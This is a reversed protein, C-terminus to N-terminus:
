QNANLKIGYCHQESRKNKGNYDYVFWNGNKVYEKTGPLLVIQGEEKINGNVHYIKETYKKHKLDNLELSSSLVGNDFWTKKLIIYKLDKDSEESLKPQGNEYYEYVKQPRSQYYSIQKFLSGDDFYINLLCRLPDSNEFTLAANGNEFYNKFRILKGDVYFGRHLIKGSRYFHEQWGQTLSGNAYLAISDGGLVVLLKTYKEFNNADSLFCVQDHTLSDISEVTAQSYCRICFL